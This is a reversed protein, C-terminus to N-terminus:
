KALRLVRAGSKTTTHKKITEEPANLEKAVAEWDIKLTDKNARFTCLKNGAEDTLTDADEIRRMIAFKAESEAAELRKELSKIRNLRSIATIEVPTAVVIKGTTHKSWILKCDDESQPPPPTDGEVYRKWFEKVIARMGAILEDNRVCSLDCDIEDKLLDWTPLDGHEVEPFFGMYWQLQTEYYMPIETFGRTTTKADVIRKRDATMADLSAIFCGDIVPAIQILPRGTQTTYEELVVPELARGRKFTNNDPAKPSRGTKEMWLQIPSKWKSIGLVSAVDSGGIGKDRYKMEEEHDYQTTTESM